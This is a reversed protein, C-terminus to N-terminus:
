NNKRKEELQFSSECHTYNSNIFVVENVQFELIM